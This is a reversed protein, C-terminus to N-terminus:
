QMQRRLGAWAFIALGGLLLPLGAPLPVVSLQTFSLSDFAGSKRGYDLRIVSGIRIAVPDFGLLATENDRGVRARAVREGDVFVSFRGDDVVSVADFAFSGKPMGIIRLDIAGGDADDDPTTRDNRGDGQLILINESILGNGWRPVLDPDARRARRDNVNFAAAGANPGHSTLAFKFGSESFTILPVPQFRGSELGDFGITVAAVTNPLLLALGMAGFLMRIASM